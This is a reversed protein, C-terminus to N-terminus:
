SERGGRCGSGDWADSHAPQAGDALVPYGERFWEHPSDFKDNTGISGISSQVFMELQLM